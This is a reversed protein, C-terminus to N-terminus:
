LDTETRYTPKQGIGYPGMLAWLPGMLAWIPGLGSKPGPGPSAVCLAFLFGWMVTKKSTMNRKKKSKRKGPSWLAPNKKNNLFNTNKKKWLNPNPGM